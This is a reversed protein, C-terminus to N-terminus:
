FYTNPYEIFEFFFLRAIENRVKDDKYWGLKGNRLVFWRKKWVRKYFRGGLKYLYGQVLVRDDKEVVERQYHVDDDNGTQTKPPMAGGESPGVYLVDRSIDLEDDDGYNDQGDYDMEEDSSSTLLDGSLVALRQDNVDVNTLPAGAVTGSTLGAQIAVDMPTNITSASALKDAYYNKDAALHTHVNLLPSGSHPQRSSTGTATPTTLLSPIPSSSSEPLTISTPSTQTSAHEKYNKDKDDFAQPPSISTQTLTTAIGITSDAPEESKPSSLLNPKPQSPSIPTTLVHEGRPHRQKSSPSSEGTVFTEFSIARESAISGEEEKIGGLTTGATTTTPPSRCIATPETEESDDVQESATESAVNTTKHHHLADKWLRRVESLWVEFEARDKCQLFFTKQKTVIGFVNQRRKLKVEAIAHIDELEIIRLVQYEKSDKYYAM